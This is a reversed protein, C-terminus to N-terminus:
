PVIYVEVLAIGTGGGVGSAHVTYLGPPLTVVLAADASGSNLAFAFVAAAAQEIPAADGNEGWNDCSLIWDSGPQPARSKYIDLRPNALVGELGWTSLAPGAARILFTRPGADSVAFGPIMVNGGTGIYGRTSINVLRAADNGPLEYLEVLAIGNPNGNGTTVATYGGPPLDVLLAASQSGETLPFAFVSNAATAIEAANSADGWNDNAALEAGTSQSKLSLRPDEMTGSLGFGVLEPGVARLLLRKSGTGSIWFGPIIVGNGSQGLVRTSLNVVRADSPLADSVILTAPSSIVFRGNSSTVVCTYAGAHFSQTSLLTLTSSTAGAIDVGDRRWQYSLTGPGSASITFVTAGGATTTASSPAANIVPPSIVTLTASESTTPSSGGYSAVCRFLDGDMGSTTAAINLTATTAGTYTANDTLETWSGGAPRHSWRYTLAGSGSASVSFQVPQGSDVTANQPHSLFAPSALVSSGIVVINAYDNAAIASVRSIAPPLTGTMASTGWQVLTGDSKLALSHYASAAIAVVGTLGSPVTAQGDGNGGWAVVTGDGKLALAHQTGAAIAVVGSLGSPITGQSAGWRTVTGNSRVAYSTNNGAAVALVGSLGSPVNCEGQANNGWAVVTGDSKLALVHDVGISLAAVGSLGVPVNAQGRANDGWV